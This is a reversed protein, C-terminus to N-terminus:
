IAEDELMAEWFQEETAFAEPGIEREYAEQDRKECWAIAEYKSPFVAEDVMGLYGVDVEDGYADTSMYTLLIGHWGEITQEVQLMAFHTAISQGSQTGFVYYPECPEWEYMM